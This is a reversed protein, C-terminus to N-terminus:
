NLLSDISAIKYQITLPLWISIEKDISPFNCPDYIHVTVPIVNWSLAVALAIRIYSIYYLLQKLIIMNMSSQIKGKTEYPIKAGM